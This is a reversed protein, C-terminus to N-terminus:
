CGRKATAIAESKATNQATEDLPKKLFEVAEGLTYRMIKEYEDPTITKGSESMKDQAQIMAETFKIKQEGSLRDQTAQLQAMRAEDTSGTIGVTPMQGAMLSKAVSEALLGERGMQNALFDAGVIGKGVVNSTTEIPSTVFEKTALAFSKLLLETTGKGALNEKETFLNKALKIANGIGPIELLFNSVTTMLNGLWDGMEKFKDGMWALGGVIKIKLVDYLTGAVNAVKDFNEYVGKAAGALLAFVIFRKSLDVVLGGLMRFGTLAAETVAVGNSAAGGVKSTISGLTTTSEASKFISSIKEAILKGFGTTPGFISTESSLKNKNYLSGLGGLTSVTRNLGVVEALKALVKKVSGPLKSVSRGVGPIGVNKVYLPDSKSGKPTKAGGTLGKGGFLKGIVPIKSFLGKISGLIKFATIATLLGATVKGISKGINELDEVWFRSWEGSDVGILKLLKNRSEDLKNIIFTIGDKFGSMVGKSFMTISATVRFMQTTLDLLGHNRLLNALSDDIKGIGKAFNEPDNVFSSVAQFVGKFVGGFIKLRETFTKAGYTLGTFAGIGATLITVLGPLGIGVASLAILSLRLTGFAAFLGAAGATAVGMAKALFIIEPHAKNINEVFSQVSISADIIKELLPTFAKLALTKIEQGALKSFIGIDQLTDLYDRSGKMNGETAARLFKMGLTLRQSLSLVGGLVGTYKGLIAQQLKFTKNSRSLINLQELHAVTGDKLFQTILKIGESSDKGAMKAATGARALIDAIQRTDKTIGLSKIAVGARMAEFFDISNTTMGRIMTILEGKPGM